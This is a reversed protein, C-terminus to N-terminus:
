EVAPMFAIRGRYKRELDVESRETRAHEEFLALATDSGFPFYPVERYRAGDVSAFYHRGDGDQAIAVTCQRTKGSSM